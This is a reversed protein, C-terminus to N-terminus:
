REPVILLMPLMIALTSPTTSLTNRIPAGLEKRERYTWYADEKYKPTTVLDMRGPQGGTKQCSAEHSIPPWTLSCILKM